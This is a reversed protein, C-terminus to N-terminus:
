KVTNSAPSEALQDVVGSTNCSLCVFTFTQLSYPKWICIYEDTDKKCVSCERINKWLMIKKRYPLKGPIRVGFVYNRLSNGRGIPNTLWLPPFNLARNECM